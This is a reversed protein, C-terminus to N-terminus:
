RTESTDRAPSRVVVECPDVVPNKETGIQLQQRQFLVAKTVHRFVYPLWGVNPAQKEGVVGDATDWNFEAEEGTEYM